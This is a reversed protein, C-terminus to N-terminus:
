NRHSLYAGSPRTFYEILEELATALYPLAARRAGAHYARRRARRKGCEAATGPDHVSLRLLFWGNRLGGDLDFVIRVGERNDPAIHWDPRM